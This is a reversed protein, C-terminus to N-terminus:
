FVRRMECGLLFTWSCCDANLYKMGAVWRFNHHVFWHCLLLSLFISIASIIRHSPCFLSCLLVEVSILKMLHGPVMRQQLYPNETQTMRKSSIVHNLTLQGEDRPLSVSFQALAKFDQETQSCTIPSATVNLWLERTKRLVVSSAAQLVTLCRGHWKRQACPASIQM